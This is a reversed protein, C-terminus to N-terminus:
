ISIMIQHFETVVFTKVRKWQLVVNMVTIVTVVRKEGVEESVKFRAYVPCVITKCGLRYRCYMVLCTFSLMIQLFKMYFHFWWFYIISRTNWDINLLDIFCKSIWVFELIINVSLKKRYMCRQPVCFWQM